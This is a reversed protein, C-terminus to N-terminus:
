GAPHLLILSLGSSQTIHLSLCLDLTAPCGMMGTRVWGWLGPGGAAELLKLTPPCGWGHGDPLSSHPSATSLAPNPPPSSGQLEPQECGLLATAAPVDADQHLSKLSLAPKLLLLVPAHPYM